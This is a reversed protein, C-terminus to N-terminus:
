DKSFNVKLRQLCNQILEVPQLASALPWSPFTFYCYKAYVQKLSKTSQLASAQLPPWVM